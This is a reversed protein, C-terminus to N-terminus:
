SALILIHTGAACLADFKWNTMLLLKNSTFLLTIVHQYTWMTSTYSSVTMPVQNVDAWFNIKGWALIDPQEVLCLELIIESATSSAHWCTLSVLTDGSTELIISWTWFRFCLATCVDIGTWMPPYGPVSIADIAPNFRARRESEL